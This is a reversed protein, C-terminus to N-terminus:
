TSSIERRPVINEKQHGVGKHKMLYSTGMEKRAKGIKAAKTRMIM